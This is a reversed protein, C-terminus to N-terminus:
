EAKSAPPTMSSVPQMEGKIIQQVQNRVNQYDPRGRYFGYTAHSGNNWYGDLHYQREDPGITGQERAIATAAPYSGVSFRHDLDEDGSRLIFKWSLPREGKLEYYELVFARIKGIQFQDCIFFEKKTLEEYKKSNRAERLATIEANAATKDGAAWYAQVLKERVRWDEPDLTQLTKWQKIAGAFDEALYNMLGLNYLASPDSPDEKLAAILEEKTPEATFAATAFFLFLLFTKM